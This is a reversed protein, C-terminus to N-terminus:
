TTFVKDRGSTVELSRALSPLVLEAPHSCRVGSKGQSDPDTDVFFGEEGRVGGINLIGIPKRNESARKALRWASYRFM